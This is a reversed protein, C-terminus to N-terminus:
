ASGLMEEAIRVVGDAAGGHGLRERVGDLRALQAERVPGEVLRELAGAIPGPRADQQLFEPVIPTGAVLNPMTLSPVHIFRRLLEATLANGRLAVVLPRSLLAVELTVTGPKALAVDCARIAERARGTVVDLRLSGPLGADALLRSVRAPDLGPAPALVFRLDPRRDHLVRATDLFLPLLYDLENRRSGPLLLVVPRAPDPDLGLRTRAAERDLGRLEELQGVLPHGVYQVRVGSGAYVAPEFPFIVAVRDVRRAIKRIRGRRTAWVQPAIYYLVPVGRRRLRRALPLHFGGSDVLVALDPRGRGQASGLARWVRWLRPLSGVAEFVGGIALERQDAVREVGAKELEPGTCGWMRVDPHRTRLARAFDAAHLDGSADGASVLITTM